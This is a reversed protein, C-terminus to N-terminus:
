LPIAFEKACAVPLAATGAPEEEPYKLLRYAAARKQSVFSSSRSCCLDGGSRDTNM